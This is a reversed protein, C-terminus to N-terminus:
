QLSIDLVVEGGAHKAGGAHKTRKRGGGRREGRKNGIWFSYGIRRV